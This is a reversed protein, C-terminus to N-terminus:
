AKVEALEYRGVGVIRVAGLDQATALRASTRAPRTIRIANDKGCRIAGDRTRSTVYLVEREPKSQRGRELTVVWKKHEKDAWYANAEEQTQRAPETQLLNM